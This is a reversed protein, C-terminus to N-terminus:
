RLVEGAKGLKHCDGCAVGLPKYRVVLVGGAAYGVHCRNCAVRAHLGDLPFRSDRQHDFRLESWARDGHCRSCDTVGGIAFQGAHPDTHCAACTTGAAKGLRPASAGGAGAPHCGTCAVQAHAGALAHGTWRGHDFDAVVPAFARTDHCRACGRRGDVTSPRAGADFRGAHVDAHCASCERPTGHFTRVGEHVEAHCRVCAVAEHAGTLPFASAAHAAIGFTHPLFHARAPAHCASCQAHRPEHDFQGRHVDQHCSRCDDGRRGPYRAPWDAGRHCAACAVDAHPTVLAFGTAAHQAADMTGDRFSADDDRHCGACGDAPGVAATAALVVAPAHPHRTHCAGCAALAPAAGRWRAPTTADGHCAACA